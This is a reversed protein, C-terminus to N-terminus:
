TQSNRLAEDRINGMDSRLTEIESLKLKLELFKMRKLKMEQCAIQTKRIQKQLSQHKDNKM